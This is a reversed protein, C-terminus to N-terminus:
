RAAEAAARKAKRDAAAKRLAASRAERQVKAKARREAERARLKAIRDKEDGGSEAMHRYRDREQELEAIRAKLQAVIAPEAQPEPNPQRHTAPSPKTVHPKDRFPPTDPKAALRERRRRQREADTMAVKGIPPRGM